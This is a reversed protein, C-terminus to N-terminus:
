RGPVAEILAADSNPILTLSVVPLDLETARRGLAQRLASVAEVDWTDGAPDDVVLVVRTVPEGDRREDAFVRADRVVLGRAHYERAFALLQQQAENQATMAALTAPTTGAPM